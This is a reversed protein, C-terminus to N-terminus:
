SAPPTLPEGGRVRLDYYLLTMVAALFPQALVAIIAGVIVQGAAAVPDWAQEFTTWDIGTGYVLAGLLSAILGIVAGLLGLLVIYGIVRWTSGSVLRWSRGLASLAGAGDLMVAQVFLSWRAALFVMAAFASVGIVLGIFVGAGTGGIGAAVIALALGGAMLGVAALTAVLTGALLSPLRRLASGVARGAGPRAGGYTWGILHVLAASALTVALGVIIGGLMTMALAELMGSLEAPSLQEMLRRELGVMQEGVALNAALNIAYAPVLFASAAAVLALPRFRYISWAVALARGISLPHM